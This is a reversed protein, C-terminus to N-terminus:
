AIFPKVSVTAIAERWSECCGLGGFVNGGDQLIGEVAWEGVTVMRGALM